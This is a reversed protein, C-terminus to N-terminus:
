NYKRVDAQAKWSWSSSELKLELNGVEGGLKWGRGSSELKLRELKMGFKGIERKEQRGKGVGIEISVEFYNIHSM